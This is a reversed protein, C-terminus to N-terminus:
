FVTHHAPSKLLVMFCTVDGTPHSIINKSRAKNENAAVIYISYISAADQPVSTDNVALTQSTINESASFLGLLM